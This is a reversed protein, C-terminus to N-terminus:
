REILIKQVYTTKNHNIKLLYFGSSVDNVTIQKSFKGVFNSYNSNHVRQGSENLIDINLDAKTNVEFSLNFVGNNPNPSVKLKIEQALVDAIATVAFTIV